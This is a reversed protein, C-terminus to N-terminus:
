IIQFRSLIDNLEHLEMTLEPIIESESNTTEKFRKIECEFDDILDIMKILNKDPINDMGDEKLLFKHKNYSHYVKLLSGLVKNYSKSKENAHKEAQIKYNRNNNRVTFILTIIASLFGAIGVILSVIATTNNIFPEQQEIM